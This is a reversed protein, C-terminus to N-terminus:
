GMRIEAGDVIAALFFADEIQRHRVQLAFRQRPEDAAALLQRRARDHHHHSLQGQRHLRRVLLPDDM